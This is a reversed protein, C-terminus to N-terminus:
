GSFLLFVSNQVLEKKKKTKKLLGLETVSAIFLAVPVVIFGVIRALAKLCEIRAVGCWIRIKPWKTSCYHIKM